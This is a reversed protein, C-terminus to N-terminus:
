TFAYAAALEIDVAKGAGEGSGTADGAASTAGVGSGQCDDPEHSYAGDLCLNWEM